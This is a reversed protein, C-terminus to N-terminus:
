ITESSHHAEHKITLGDFISYIVIGWFTMQEPTFRGRRRQQSQRRKSEMKFEHNEEIFSAWENSAGGVM